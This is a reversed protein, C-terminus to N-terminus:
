RSRREVVKYVANLVRGVKEVARRSRVLEVLVWIGLPVVGLFVIDSIEDIM